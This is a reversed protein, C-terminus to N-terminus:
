HELGKLRHLSEVASRMVEIQRDAKARTMKKSDVWRPYVQQRLRIERELEAIEEDITIPLLDM